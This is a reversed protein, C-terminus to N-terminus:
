DGADVIMEGEARYARHPLCYFRYTGSSLRPVWLEFVQGESTLLPGSLLSMRDTIAENLASRDAATMGTSDFVISHPAGSGVRFRLVDGPKVTIRAPDFGYRDRDRDVEIEIEHVTQASIGRVNILLLLLAAFALRGITMPSVRLFSRPVAVTRFEADLGPRPPGTCQFITPDPPIDVKWRLTGDVHSSLSYLLVAGLFGQGQDAGISVM